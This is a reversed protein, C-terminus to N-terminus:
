FSYGQNSPLFTRRCKIIMMYAMRIEWFKGAYIDDPISLKLRDGSKLMMRSALGEWENLLVTTDDHSEDVKVTAPCHRDKM